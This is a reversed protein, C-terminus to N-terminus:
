GDGQLRKFRRCLERWSDAVPNSGGPNCCGPGSGFGPERQFHRAQSGLLSSSEVVRAPYGIATIAEAVEAATVERDHDVTVRATALDATMGLIGPVKRLEADIVRLCAGCTIKEVQLTTRAVMDEAGVAKGAVLPLLCLGLLAVLRWAQGIKLIIKM